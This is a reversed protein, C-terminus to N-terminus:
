YIRYSSVVNNASGFVQVNYGAPITGLYSRQYTSAYLAISRYWPAIASSMSNDPFYPSCRSISDCYCSSYYYACYVNAYYGGFYYGSFLQVTYSYSLSYLQRHQDNDMPGGNECLYTVSKPPLIWTDEHHLVTDCAANQAKKDLCDWYREAVYAMGELCRLDEFDFPTPDSAAHTDCFAEALLQSLSAVAEAYVEGAADCGVSFMNHVDVGATENSKLENVSVTYPLVTHVTSPDVAYSELYAAFRVVPVLVRMADAEKNAWATCLDV